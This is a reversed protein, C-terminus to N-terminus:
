ATKDAPKNPDSSLVLLIYFLLRYLFGQRRIGYKCIAKLRKARVIKLCNAYANIYKIVEPHVTLNQELIRKNLRDAQTVSQIFNRQGKRWRLKLDKRFPNLSNLMGKAGIINDDHQRYLIWPKEIFEIKGCAAACLAAWWDHMLVDEPIPTVLKLLARNLVSACGTIHNEPLLVRLSEKINKMGQYALFSKHIHKLNKDVVSLDTHVLVPCEKGNQEEIKQLAEIQTEIKGTLWVDDQDCFFVADANKKLAIKCLERYNGLTGLNGKNDAVIQIRADNQQYIKLISTTNDNSGDDRVLLKWNQCSQAQISKIQEGLYLGGNYTGLLIFVRNEKLIIDNWSQLFRSLEM